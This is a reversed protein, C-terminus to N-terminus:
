WRWGRAWANGALFGGVAGVAGFTFAIVAWAWREWWSDAWGEPTPENLFAYTADDDHPLPSSLRRRELVEDMTLYKSYDGRDITGGAKAQKIGARLRDDLTSKGAKISGPVPWASSGECVDVVDNIVTTHNYLRGVKKLRIRKKCFLCKGRPPNSV